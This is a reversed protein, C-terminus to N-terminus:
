ENSIAGEIISKMLDICELMTQALSRTLTVTQDPDAVPKPEPDPSPTETPIELQKDDDDPLEPADPEVLLAWTAPGCIGDAKVGNKEQLAKVASETKAGYKGDILGCDYGDANLLAQLYAVSQGQSGRRLTELVVGVELADAIDDMTYLGKPIAFQTWNRGSGLAEQKVEGSCHIVLGDLLYLGTHGELFVCGVLNPLWSIDGRVDWNSSTSLQVSVKQGYIDIGAGNLVCYHTFGRCDFALLGDYKCGTCSTQKDSLVPCRKYTIERQSPNYDAYRKRLAPTCPQGWTGYVYPCGLLSIALEIISEARLNPM